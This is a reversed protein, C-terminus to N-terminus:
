RIHQRSVQRHLGARKHAAAVLNSIDAIGNAQRVQHGHRAHTPHALGAQGHLYRSLQQGGEGIPRPQALQGGSAVSVGQGLNHGRRQSYHLPSAARRFSADRLDEPRAIKQQHQVVTLM